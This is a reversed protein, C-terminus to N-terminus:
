WFKRNANKKYLVLPQPELRVHVYCLRFAVIDMVGTGARQDREGCGPFSIRRLEKAM